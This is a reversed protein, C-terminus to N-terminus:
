AKQHLKVHLPPLDPKQVGETRTAVSPENLIRSVGAVGVANLAGSHPVPVNLKSVANSPIASPLAPEIYSCQVAGGDVSAEAGLKACASEWQEVMVRVDVLMDQCWAGRKLQKAQPASPIMKVVIKRWAQILNDVRCVAAVREVVAQIVVEGRPSLYCQLYWRQVGRWRKVKAEVYRLVSAPKLTSKLIRCEYLVVTPTSKVRRPSFSMRKNGTVPLTTGYWWCRVWGSGAKAM